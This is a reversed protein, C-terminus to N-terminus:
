GNDAETTVQPTRAAVKQKTFDLADKFFRFSGIWQPRRQDNSPQNDFVEFTYMSTENISYRTDPAM